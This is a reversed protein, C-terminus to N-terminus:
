SAPRRQKACCRCCPKAVRLAGFFNTDFIEEVVTPDAAGPLGNGRLHIGANNVLIDLHGYQREIQEAASQSTGQRTVDIEIFHVDDLEAQQLQRVAQQGLEESRVGLLVTCRENALNRSIELGIGKNGSTVLAIKKATTM